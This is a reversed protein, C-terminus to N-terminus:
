CSMFTYSIVLVNDNHLYVRGALISCLTIVFVAIGIIPISLILPTYWLVQTQATQFLDRVRRAGVGVFMEDFESGSAYFFPVGAEGAIAKALLTKGTGPAGTLLVGKPLKGGLKTFRQPEKLYLVIEQLDEKAEDIGVVDDFRINSKEAVHVASSGGLKQGLAGAAGTKEELVVMLFSIFCFVGIGKMLMSKVTDWFNFVNGSKVFLPHDPSSGALSSTSLSIPHIGSTAASDGSGAAINKAFASVDMKEFLNLSGALKLYARLYFDNKPIENTAWGKEIIQIAKLPDSKSLKQIQLQIKHDPNTFANTSSSFKSALSSGLAPATKRHFPSLLSPFNRGQTRGFPLRASARVSLAFM